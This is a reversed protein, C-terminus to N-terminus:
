RARMFVLGVIAAELASALADPYGVSETDGDIGATRSVVWVAVVALNLLALRRVWRVWRSPRVLAVVAWVAQFVAVGLFFAGHSTREDFHASAFGFHIAAAGLSM